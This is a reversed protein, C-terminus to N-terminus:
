AADRPPREDEAEEDPPPPPKSQEPPTPNEEVFFLQFVEVAHDRLLVASAAIVVFSILTARVSQTAAYATGFALGGVVAGAVAPHARVARKGEANLHDHIAQIQFVLPILTVVVVTVRGLITAYDLM